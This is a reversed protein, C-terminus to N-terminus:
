GGPSKHAVVADFVSRKSAGTSSAVLAIAEKRPIGQAELAAVRAALGAPDTDGGSRAPAGEVVLTIEGRM